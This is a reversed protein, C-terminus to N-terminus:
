AAARMRRDSKLSRTGPEARRAVRATTGAPARAAGARQEWRSSAGRGAFCWRRPSRWGGRSRNTAARPHGARRRDGPQHVRLALRVVRAPAAARVHLRRLRRDRRADVHLRARREHAHTFFLDNWEGRLTGAVMMILGGALMQYRRRDSCEDTTPDADDSRADRGSRIRRGSRGASRPSRCRSSAQSSAAVARRDSRSIRGSSCCSAASVSSWAPSRRRGCVNATPFVASRGDGDLVALDRGDGGRAREPGVAGRVRRRRQRARAAPLRPVRHRGVAVATSASRGRLRPLAALLSGAITWRLGGM